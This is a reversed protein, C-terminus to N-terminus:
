QSAQDSKAKVPKDQNPETTDTITSAKRGEKLAPAFARNLEPIAARIFDVAPNQEESQERGNAPTVVYIKYLARQGAFAWRYAEPVVWPGSGNFSWYIRLNQNGGPDAKLFTATKFEAVESGAEISQNSVESSTEFGAAPYCRDPSHFFVDDLRGCVIFISVQENHENHYIRSLSGVAGAIEMIRKDEPPLDEGTWDGIKMPVNKLQDAYLELEPFAGWRETWIGQLIAAAIIIAAAAAVPLYRAM